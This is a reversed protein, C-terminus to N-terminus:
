TAWIQMLQSRFFIQSRKFIKRQPSQRNVILFFGWCWVWLLYVRSHLFSFFVVKISVNQWNLWSGGEFSSVNPWTKLFKACADDDDTDSKNSYHIRVSADCSVHYAPSLKIFTRRKSVVFCLKSLNLRWRTNHVGSWMVDAKSDIDNPM